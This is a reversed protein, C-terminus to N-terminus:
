LIVTVSAFQRFVCTCYPPPHKRRRGPRNENWDVSLHLTFIKKEIKYVKNKFPNNRQLKYYNRLKYYM